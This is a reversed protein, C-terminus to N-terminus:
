KKGKELILFYFDKSFNILILPWLTKAGGLFLVVTNNICIQVTHLGFKDV